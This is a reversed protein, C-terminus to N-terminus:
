TRRPLGLNAILTRRNGICPKVYHDLFGPFVYGVGEEPVIEKFADAGKTYDGIRVQPRPDVFVLEGGEEPAELFFVMSAYARAHSHISCWDGDRMDRHWMTLEYRKSDYQHYNQFIEEILMRVSSQIVYKHEHTRGEVSFVDRDPKEDKLWEAIKERLGLLKDSKVRMVTTPFWELNEYM